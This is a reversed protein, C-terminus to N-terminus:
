GFLKDARVTRYDVYKYVVHHRRLLTPSEVGCAAALSFCAARLTTVYNAVRYMKESVVLAKMYDPDNTAVGVPCQGTHCKETMICGVAIMFGRAINIADAGLGLAICIQDASHLKGSAIIKVRDRLGYKRLTDDAIVLGLFPSDWRILWKKTLQEQVAKEEMWQSFIPDTM